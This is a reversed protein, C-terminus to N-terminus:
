HGGKEKLLRTVRELNVKAAPRTPNNPMEAARAWTDRAKRLDGLKEYVHALTHFSRAQCDPMEIAKQLYLAANAMDKKRNYYYYGLDDYMYYTQPNAAIGQKYMAVADNDEDMSWLLWAAQSYNEIDHPDSVAIMRSLAVIHRYEGKHWHWDQAIRLRDTIQQTMAVARAEGTVVPLPKGSKQAVASRASLALLLCLLAPAISALPRM